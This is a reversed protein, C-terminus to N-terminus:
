GPQIRHFPPERRRVKGLLDQLASRAAAYAQPDRERLNLAEFEEEDLILAEGAPTVFLDLALDRVEIEDGAIRPPYAIDCYWGKLRDDQHHHIEYIVFWRDRFFYEVFRDAPELVVHGLDQLPREWYAEVVVGEPSDGLLRGSYVARLRGDAALRRVQIRRDSGSANLGAGM